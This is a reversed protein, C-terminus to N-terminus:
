HPTDCQNMQLYQVWRAVCSYIYPQIQNALIKNLVKVDMNMLSIPMYNEKKTAIKDPKPILTISAVYFSNPFKGKMEIKQFLKLLTPIPKEKFTQYFEWPFSDPGPSRNTSLNKTVSEIEKSTIPINM